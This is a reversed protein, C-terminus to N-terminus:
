RLTQMVAYCERCFIASVKGPEALMKQSVPDVGVLRECIRCQEQMAGKPMDQWYGAVIM